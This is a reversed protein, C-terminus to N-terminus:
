WAAEFFGLVTECMSRRYDTWQNRAATAEAAERMEHLERYHDICWTLQATLADVDGAQLVWGNVGPEILDSAGTNSTTIVPLGHALAETVVMGFGDALSPFVLVSSSRYLDFLAPRPISGLVRVNSPLDRALRQPLSWEGALILEAGSRSRIARWADLLLHAGKRVSVPGAYLFRTGPGASLSRWCADIPPAGLPVVRIKAPSCGSQVLTQATLKSNAIVLDAGDIEAQKHANRSGARARLHKWYPTALEPFSQVQATLLADTVSHHLVAMDFVRRVGLAAARQFTELSAFEYGYVLSDSASLRAAISADFQRIMREWIRDRLVESVRLMGAGTRLLEWGPTMRVLEHPIFKLERRSLQADIRAGVRPLSRVLRGIRDERLYAFATEYRALMGLEHFARAVETAAPMVGPYTVVARVAAGAGPSRDDAAGIM